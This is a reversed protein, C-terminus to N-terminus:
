RRGSDSRGGGHHDPEEGTWRYKVTVDFTAGASAKSLIVGAEAALTVGFSATVEGLNWGAAGTLSGLSGAVTQSGAVIAQQIDKTRSLLLEGVNSLQRIERGQRLEVVQVLIKDDGDSSMGCRGKPVAAAVLAFASRWGPGAGVRHCSSASATEYVGEPTVGTVSGAM